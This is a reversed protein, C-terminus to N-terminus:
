LTVIKDATDSCILQGAECRQFGVTACDAVTSDKKRCDKANTAKTWGSLLVSAWDPLGADDDPSTASLRNV